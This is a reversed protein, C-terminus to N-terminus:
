YPDTPIHQKLVEFTAPTNFCISVLSLFTCGQLVWQISPHTYWQTSKNTKTTTVGDVDDLTTNHPVDSAGGAGARSRRSQMLHTNCAGGALHPISSASM